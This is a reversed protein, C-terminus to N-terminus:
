VQGWPGIRTIGQAIQLSQSADSSIASCSAFPYIPSSQVWWLREWDSEGRFYDAGGSASCCGSSTKQSQSWSHLRCEAFLFSLLRYSMVDYMPISTTSGEMGCVLLDSPLTCGWLTVVFSAHCCGCNKSSQCEQCVSKESASLDACQWSPLSPRSPRSTFWSFFTAMFILNTERGREYMHVHMCLYM